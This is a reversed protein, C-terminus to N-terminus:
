EHPMLEPPPLMHGKNWRAPTPLGTLGRALRPGEVLIGGAALVCDTSSHHTNSQYEEREAMMAALDCYSLRYTIYWRVRLEITEASFRRWRYIPDRSIRRTM